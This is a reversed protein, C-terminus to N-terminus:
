QKSRKLTRRYEKPNQNIELIEYTVKDKIKEIKSEIQEFLYNLIIIYEFEESNNNIEKWIKKTDMKNESPTRLKMHVCIRNHIKKPIIEIENLKL